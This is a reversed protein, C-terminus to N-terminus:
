LTIEMGEMALSIDIGRINMRETYWKASQLIGFLKRDDYTPDHHFLVLRKVGWNSAFDVGMSFASHGWNYKEISEGLTYQSDMVVLDANEFYRINEETRMFDDASLETDTMNVVYELLISSMEEFCDLYDEVDM